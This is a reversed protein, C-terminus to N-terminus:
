SEDILNKVYDVMESITNFVIGYDLVPRKIALIGVNCEQCAELKELEGGTEGSEKTILYDIKFNELIAINMNKSFPGQMAIINKPLYGLDEANEISSTTPLIRIFLNNKERIGKIEELANSGLTSLINKNKFQNLFEVLGKVNKFKFVNESGYDLMKREFRVYKLIEKESKARENLFSVMSIVIKSINQAYPHSADIILDINKESIIKEIQMVNLRESIVEVNKNEKVRKLLKGGYETATSIVIKEKSVKLIEDLIDRSDKTGGIIWIM